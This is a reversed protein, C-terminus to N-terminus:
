EIEEEVYLEHMKEETIADPVFITTSYYPKKEPILNGEKDTHEPIYVDDVSRILKGESSIIMKPQTHKILQM